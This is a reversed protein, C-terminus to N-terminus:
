DKTAKRIKQAQNLLSGLWTVVSLERVTAICMYNVPRSVHSTNFDLVDFLLYRLRYFIPPVLTQRIQWYILKTSSLKTFEDLIVLMYSHICIPSIKAISLTQCFYCLQGFEDIKLRALNRRKHHVSIFKLYWNYNKEFDM